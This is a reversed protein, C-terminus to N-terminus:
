KFGIKNLLQLMYKNVREVVPFFYHRARIKRRWRGGGFEQVAAYNVDVVVQSSLRDSSYNAHVSARLNGTKVPTKPSTKVTAVILESARTIINQCARKKKEDQENIWRRFRVMEGKPLMIRMSDSM